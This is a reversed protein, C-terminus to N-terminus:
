KEDSDRRGAEVQPVKSGSPTQLGREEVLAMARTVPIRVIGQRKDVWGYSNLPEEQKQRLRAYVRNPAHQLRPSPPIQARDALPSLPPDARSAAARYNQLLVWLGVHVVLAAAVIGGFFWLIGRISVDRTEYGRHVAAPPPPDVLPTHPTM